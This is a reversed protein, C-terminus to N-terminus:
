KCRPILSENVDTGDDGVSALILVSDSNEDYNKWLESESNLYDLTEQDLDSGDGPVVKKGLRWAFVSYQDSYLGDTNNLVIDIVDDGNGRYCTYNSGDGWEAPVYENFAQTDQIGAATIAADVNDRAGYSDFITSVELDVYELQAPQGKSILVKNFEALPVYNYDPSNKNGSSVEVFLPVHLVTKAAATASAAFGFVGLMSILIGFKM